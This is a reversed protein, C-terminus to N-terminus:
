LTAAALFPKVLELLDERGRYGSAEAVIVGGNFVRRAPISKIDFRTGLDPNEEVDVLVIRVRDDLEAAIGEVEPKLMQCPQCWPAWFDVLVPLDSELVVQDFNDATAHIINTTTASM